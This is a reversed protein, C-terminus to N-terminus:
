HQRFDMCTLSVPSLIFNLHKRQNENAIDYRLYVRSKSTLYQQIESFILGIYFVLILFEETRPSVSSPLVGIRFHLAIFVVQSIKDELFILFPTTLYGLYMAALAVVLCNEYMLSLFVRIKYYKTSHRRLAAKSINQLSFLSEKQTIAVAHPIKFLM